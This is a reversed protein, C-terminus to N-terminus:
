SRQVGLSAIFRGVKHELVGSSNMDLLFALQGQIQRTAIEFRIQVSLIPESAEQNLLVDSAVGLEVQPLGGEFEIHLCDAVSAVVSNLLINGIEALAEQEMEGLQELPVEEGVMIQVLLLSQEAPFMLVADTVVEGSFAQRVASIRQDPGGGLQRVVDVKSLLQVHPVSLLVAEGALQSLADAAQGVGMNFVETLADLELESLKM